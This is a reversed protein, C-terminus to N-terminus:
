GGNVINSRSRKEPSRDRRLPTGDPNVNNGGVEFFGRLVGPAIASLPNVIFKPKKLTGRLAYTMGFIGQGRGGTLLDGLLPVQGIAANVGYAPIITGGIDMAGDSKRILGNATAGIETGKVLANGIRIFNRDTSFPLVLKKFRFGRRPGGRKRDRRGNREITALKGENRVAFKRIVLLGRRVGGEEPRALLASFEMRGGFIKSYLGSARLVAGADRSVIRLRRQGAAAPVIDLTVPQGSAMRGTLAARTVVGDLVELFGRVDFINEGREMLVKKLNVTVKVFDRAAKGGGAGGTSPSVASGAEPGGRGLAGSTSFFDKVFPRADFSDGAAAIDLRGKSRKLGIALRNLADLEFRSFTAERLSGDGNLTMDGNVRMGGGRVSFRRIRIVNKRSFDITFAAKTGKVPARSWKLQDIRMAVRSLDASVDATSIHGERIKAKLTLPIPGSLWRSLDLGLKKRHKGTLTASITLDGVSGPKLARSWRIRAPVGAVRMRGTASLRGKDYVVRLTGRDLDMGDMIDRVVVNKLEAVATTEIESAKMHKSIPMSFTVRVRAEGALQRRNMGAKSILELPKEDLLELFAEARGAADVEITAPSVIPALDRMRMRGSVLKLVKGSPLVSRGRDLKLEFHNGTLRATGAADSIPTMDRFYSFKLKRVSFRVDVQEDPIVEHRKIAAIMNGGPIGLRFTGEPIIGEHINERIWRRANPALVPPWLKKILRATLNTARGGLYIGIGDGDGVFRGRMRVRSAGSRLLFDEVDLRAADLRAIGRFTLHDIILEGKRRPRGLDGRALDLRLGLARVRGQENRVPSIRGRLEAAGGNILIVSPAIVFDGSEPEYDVRVLGERVSVPRAIYGPFGVTGRGASLEASAKLMRGDSSFEAEVHGSLPLNMQALKSLAFVNRAFEAPIVDFVRAAVTFTRSKRRFTATIETRWPRGGNSVDGAVFLAFGYPVRRFVLDASPAFWLVDNLEDYFSISARSIHVAELSSLTTRESDSPSFIQEDIIRFVNDLRFLNEVDEKAPKEGRSRKEGGATMRFGVELTGDTKRRMIIRPGILDLKRVRVSGSLLAGGEVGVSARPAHALMRGGDDLLRLNHLRFAPQGSVDDLELIIGDMRVKLGSGKLNANIAREVHRDLFSLSMPGNSLRWWLWGAALALFVTLALLLVSTLRILRRTM